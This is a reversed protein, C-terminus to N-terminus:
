RALVFQGTAAGEPCDLRYFYVGSGLRGRSSAGDLVVDHYGAPVFEDLPAAVLRGSADFVRVRARGPALTRFTLTGQPNIPNPSVAVALAGSSVVDLALDARVLAGSYLFAELQAAVTQKGAPLGAFLTRLDTKLFCAGIEVVGNGDTDSVVSGKEGSAAIERGSYKLKLSSPDVAQADFNGAIPELRACWVPRGSGLRLTRNGGTMFGRAAFLNQITATTAAPASQLSLADSVVLAVPFVGGASYTHAPSAGTGQAGDGFDWAYTLPDGDPDSSGEGHFTVAISMVGQYPGGANAVPARNVNLVHLNWRLTAPLANSAQLPVVYPQARGDAFTPTWHFAGVGPGTTLFTADGPPLGSLDAALAVIPEGDPDSATIAVDLASGENVSVDPSVSLVPPRDTNAVEIVVQSSGSIALSSVPNARPASSASLTVPYSGAQDYGPNWTIAGTGHDLDFSFSAGPPLGIADFSLLPDGDPDSASAEVNM